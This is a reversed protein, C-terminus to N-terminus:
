LVLEKRCPAFSFPPTPTHLERRLHRLSSSVQRLAAYRGQKEMKWGGSEGQDDEGCKVKGDSMNM